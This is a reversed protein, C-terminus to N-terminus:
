PLELCIWFRCHLDVAAVAKGEHQALFRESSTTRLTRKSSIM